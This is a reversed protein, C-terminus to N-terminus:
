EIARSFIVFSPLLFMFNAAVVNTKRHSNKASHFITDPTYVLEECAPMHEEVMATEGM